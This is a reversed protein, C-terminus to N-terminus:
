LARRSRRGFAGRVGFLVLGLGVAVIGLGLAIMAGVNMGSGTYSLSAASGQVPAQEAAGGSAANGAGGSTALVNATGAVTVTASTTVGSQAGVATVTAVGAQTLTLSASFAGNADAIANAAPAAALAYSGSRLGPAAPITSVSILIDEGPLFGTGSFTVTGGEVVSNASVSGTVPGSVYPPAAMANGTFLLASAFAVALVATLKKIMIPGKTLHHPNPPRRTSPSLVDRRKSGRVRPGYFSLMSPPLRECIKLTIKIQQEVHPCAGHSRSLPHRFPGATSPSRRVESDHTNTKQPGRLSTESM